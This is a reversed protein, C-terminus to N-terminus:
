TLERAGFATGSAALGRFLLWFGMTLEFFFIPAGYIEVGVVKALEPFIIFLFASAGMLFSALMGWAALVKPIFRSQFWLFCFATSRLGALVLGVRYAADHASISLRAMAQLQSADFAHLYDAGSLIRLVDFDSLTVVVLIATEILGWGTALLALSRNVPMLVMYLAMILVVDVSFVTLNSAIGLRFLREHAMINRATQAADDTAILQARVYFEAFIAPPLACLYSIGVVTAAKRQSEDIGGITM